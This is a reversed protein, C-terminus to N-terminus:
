VRVPMLTIDSDPLGEVRVGIGNMSGNFTFAFTKDRGPSAKRCKELYDVNMGITEVAEYSSQNRDFLVRNYDPYTADLVSCPIVKAVDMTGKKYCTIMGVDTDILLRDVSQPIACPIMQIILDETPAIGDQMVWDVVIRSKSIIHGNTAVLELSIGATDQDQITDSLKLFFGNLYYRVDNTAMTAIALRMESVNNTMMKM